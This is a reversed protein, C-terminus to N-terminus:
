GNRRNGFGRESYLDLQSKEIFVSFEMLAQCSHNSLYSIFLFIYIYIYISNM